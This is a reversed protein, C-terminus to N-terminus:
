PRGAEPATKTSIFFRAAGQRRAADLVFVARELPVDKDSALIVVQNAPDTLLAKLRAGLEANTVPADNLFIGGATRLTIVIRNRDMPQTASAAPLNVKIGSTAIFSSTLLFFILLLLVIDTLSSYSFLALPKNVTDIRIRM